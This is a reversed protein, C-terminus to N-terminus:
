KKNLVDKVQQRTKAQQQKAPSNERARSTNHEVRGENTVPPRGQHDISM